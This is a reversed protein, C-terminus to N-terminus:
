KPLLSGFIRQFLNKDSLIVEAAGQAFRQPFIEKGDTTKMGEVLKIEARIGNEFGMPILDSIQGRLKGYEASPFADLEILVMQGKKVNGLGRSPLDLYVDYASDPPEVMIISRQPNEVTGHTLLIRGDVPSVQTIFSNDALNLETILTDGTHVITNQKVYLKHVQPGNRYWSIKYPQSRSAIIVKSIIIDPYRIIFSCLTFIALLLFMVLMGWRVIWPPIIGIIFESERVTNYKKISSPM